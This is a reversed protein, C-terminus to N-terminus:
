LVPLPSSASGDASSTGDVREIADIFSSELPDDNLIALLYRFFREASGVLTRLLAADRETPMAEMEVPTVFSSELGSVSDQITWALFGSIAELTTEFREFLPADAAVNRRNGPTTLPWCEATVGDPLPISASSKYTVVWGSTSEEVTGTFLQRALLRRATDARNSEDPHDPDEIDGPRYPHFLGRLGLEDDNGDLLRDIGLLQKKGTLEALVEVNSEFAAGTANASGCFVTATQGSEFAFLKAHLGHLPHAPDGPSAVQSSTEDTSSGDDFASWSAVRSLTDPDLRDISEPRSVVQDIEARPIQNFFGDSLFPSIIFSRSFGQPFPPEGAELGLVHFQLEDM